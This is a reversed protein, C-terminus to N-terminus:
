REEASKEVLSTLYVYLDIKIDITQQKIKITGVPVYFAMFISIEGMKNIMIGKLAYVLAQCM